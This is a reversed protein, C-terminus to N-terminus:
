DSVIIASPLVFYMASRIQTTSNLPPRILGAFHSVFASALCTSCPRRRISTPTVAAGTHLQIPRRNGRAM